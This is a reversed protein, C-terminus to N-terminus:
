REASLIAPGGSADPKNASKLSGTHIAGDGGVEIKIEQEPYTNEGLWDYLEQAKM